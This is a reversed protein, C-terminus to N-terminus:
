IWWLRLVTRCQVIAAIIKLRLSVGWAPSGMRTQPGDPDILTMRQDNGHRIIIGVQTLCTTTVSPGPPQGKRGFWGEKGRRLDQEDGRIRSARYQGDHVDVSWGPMKYPFYRDLRPCRNVGHGFFGCSFCQGSDGLDDMHPRWLLSAPSHAEQTMVSGVHTADRLLLELETNRRWESIVERRAGMAELVNRILLERDASSHSGRRPSEDLTPMVSGVTFVSSDTAPPPLLLKPKRYVTDQCWNKIAVPEAHSEWIRCSDVIDVISTEPTASDLHRRLDCSQQSAIFKNRVMLDRTRLALIGLETAFTAPDLGPHRHVNEFQRRFVALRGPTKYYASLEDVLDKWRERITDPLLLAM